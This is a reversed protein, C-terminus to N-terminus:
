GASRWLDYGVWILGARLFDPATNGRVPVRPNVRDHNQQRDERLDAVLGRGDRQVAYEVPCSPPLVNRNLRASDGDTVDSRRVDDAHDATM